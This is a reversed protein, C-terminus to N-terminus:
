VNTNDEQSINDCELPSSTSVYFVPIVDKLGEDYGADYCPQFKLIVEKDKSLNNRADVYGGKWADHCIIQDDCNDAIMSIICSLGFILAIVAAIASILLILNIENM